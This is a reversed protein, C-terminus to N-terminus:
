AFRCMLSSCWSSFHMAFSFIWSLLFKKTLSGYIFPPWWKRWLQFKLPFFRQRLRCWGWELDLLSHSDAFDFSPRLTLFWRFHKNKSKINQRPDNGCTKWLKSSGFCTKNKKMLLRNIVIREGPLSINKSFPPFVVLVFSLKLRFITTRKFFWPFRRDRQFNTSLFNTKDKIIYM